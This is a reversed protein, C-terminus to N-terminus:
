EHSVGLAARLRLMAAHLRSKVTGLPICETDSIERGSRGEIAALVLVRRQEEPLEQIARRLRGVEFALLGEREPNSADGALHLLATDEFLGVERGRMRLADIALNRAITLLWTDVRGRRADFVRCVDM